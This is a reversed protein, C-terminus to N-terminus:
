LVVVRSLTVAQRRVPQYLVSVQLVIMNILYSLKLSELCLQFEKCSILVDFSKMDAYYHDENTDITCLFFHDYTM